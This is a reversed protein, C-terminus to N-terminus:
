GRQSYSRCVRWARWTRCVAFVSMPGSGLQEASLNEFSLDLREALSPHVSTVHGTESRSTIATIEVEPHRLLIRMLELATYGTAGQIAVRTM